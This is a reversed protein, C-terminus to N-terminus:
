RGDFMINVKIAVDMLVSDQRRLSEEVRLVVKEVAIINAQLTKISVEQETNTQSTKQQKSWVQNGFWGIFLILCGALIRALWKWTGNMKAM